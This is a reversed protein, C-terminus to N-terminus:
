AECADSKVTINCRSDISRAPTPTSMIADSGRSCASRSGPSCSSACVSRVGVFNKFFKCAHCSSGRCILAGAEEPAAESTASHTGFKCGVVPSIGHISSTDRFASTGPSTQVSTEPVSSEDEYLEQSLNGSAEPSSIENEYHSPTMLELLDLMTTLLDAMTGCCALKALNHDFLRKSLCLPQIAKLERFQELAAEIRQSHHESLLAISLEDTSSEDRVHNVARLLAGAAANLRGCDLLDAVDLAAARLYQKLAADSGKVLQELRSDIYSIPTVECLEDGDDRDAFIHTVFKWASWFAGSVSVIMVLSGWPISPPLLLIAHLLVPHARLVPYNIDFYAPLRNFMHLMSYLGTLLAAQVLLSLFGTLPRSQLQGRCAPWALWPLFPKIVHQLLVCDGLRTRQLAYSFDLAQMRLSATFIDSYNAEFESLLGFHAGLFFCTTDEAIRSAASEWTALVAAANRYELKAMQDQVCTELQSSWTESFHFNEIAAMRQEEVALHAKEFVAALSPLPLQGAAKEAAVSFNGCLSGAQAEEFVEQALTGSLEQTQVVQLFMELQKVVGSAQMPRSLRLEALVRNRLEEAANVYAGALDADPVSDLQAWARMDYTAAPVEHVLHHFDRRVRARTDDPLALFDQLQRRSIDSSNHSQVPQQLVWFVSLNRRMLGDAPLGKATLGHKLVRALRQQEAFFSFFQENLVKVSNILVASSFLLSLSFIKPGYAGEADESSFLGETDMWVVTGLGNVEEACIQIGRTFTQQGHGIGFGNAYPAQLRMLRCLLMSKGGRYVGLMPVVYVPSPLAALYSLGDESFRLTDSVTVDLLPIPCTAALSSSEERRTGPATQLYVRFVLDPSVLLLWIAFRAIIM